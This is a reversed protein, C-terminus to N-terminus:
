QRAFYRSQENVKWGLKNYASARDNIMTNHAM